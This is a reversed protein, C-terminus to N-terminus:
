LKLLYTASITPYSRFYDAVGTATTRDRFLGYICSGSGTLSAYLAGLRYFERKVDEMEPHRPYISLEFDNAVCDRWEEIPITAIERLDFEAPKPTVGAFAEKTSIYIDPKVVALWYGSLDLEVPTLREGIGEAYSPRNHIFFPVDAGLRLALRSLLADDPVSERLGCEHELRGLMKLTFAADASGGGMGAGDPIHKELMVSVRFGPTAVESFYLQAARWVLNREPECGLDRGKQTFIFRDEPAEPVSSAPRPLPVIELIDCFQVPNQPTGAYVGVPYFITQLDHYGDKRRNVIQLGINIKANVFEIM